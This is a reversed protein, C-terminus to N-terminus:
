TKASRPEPEPDRPGFDRVADLADYSHTRSMEKRANAEKQLRAMDELNEASQTDRSVPAEGRDYGESGKAIEDIEVQTLTETTFLKERIKWNKMTDTEGKGRSTQARIM